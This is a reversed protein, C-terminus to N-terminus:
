SRRSRPSSTPTSPRRSGGKKAASGAATAELEADAWAECAQWFAEVVHRFERGAALQERARAAQEATLRRSQTGRTRSRTLSFYPGHRATDDTACACRAKGCKIFRVGLSGRRMPRAQRLKDALIRVSEPVPDTKPM